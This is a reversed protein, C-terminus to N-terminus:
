GAESAESAPATGAKISCHPSSDDDGDEGLDRNDIDDMLTLSIIM